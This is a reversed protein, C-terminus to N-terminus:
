VYPNRTRRTISRPNPLRVHRQPLLLPALHEARAPDLIPQCLHAPNSPRHNETQSLPLHPPRRQRQRTARRNQHEALDRRNLISPQLSRRNPNNGLRRTPTTAPLPQGVPQRLIPERRATAHPKQPHGRQRPRQRRQEATDAHRRPHHRVRHPQNPNTPLSTRSSPRNEYPRPHPQTPGSPVTESFQIPNRNGNIPNESCLM